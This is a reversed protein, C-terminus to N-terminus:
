ARAGLTSPHSVLEKRWKEKKDKDNVALEHLQGSETGLIVEQPFCLHSQPRWILLFLANSQYGSHTGWHGKLNRDRGYLLEKLGNIEDPQYVYINISIQPPQPQSVHTSLTCLVLFRIFFFTTAVLILPGIQHTRTCHPQHHHSSMARVLLSIPMQKRQCEVFGLVNTEMGTPYESWFMQRWALLINVGAHLINRRTSLRDTDIELQSTDGRIGLCFCRLQPYM